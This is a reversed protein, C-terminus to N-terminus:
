KKNKAKKVPKVTVEKKEEVTEEKMEEVSEKQEELVDNGAEVLGKNEEEKVVIPEEVKEEIQALKAKFHILANELEQIRTRMCSGCSTPAVSKHLVRNYVNALQGADVYLGKKKIEIFKEITKIDEDSFTYNM